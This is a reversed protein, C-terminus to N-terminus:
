GFIPKLVTLIWFNVFVCINTLYIKPLDKTCSHCSFNSVNEKKKYFVKTLLGSKKTLQFLLVTLPVPIIHACLVINLLLSAKILKHVQVNKEGEPCGALRSM